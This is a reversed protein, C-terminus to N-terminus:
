VGAEGGQPVSERENWTAIDIAHDFVTKRYRGWHARSCEWRLGAPTGDVNTLLPPVVRRQFMDAGNTWWETRPFGASMAVLTWM